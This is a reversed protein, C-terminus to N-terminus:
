SASWCTWADLLLVNQWRRGHRAAAPPTTIPTVAATATETLPLPTTVPAAATHAGHYGVDGATLKRIREKNGLQFETTFSTISWDEILRLCFKETTTALLGTKEIMALTLTIITIDSIPVHGLVAICQVNAIKSWLDEIPNDFNRPESLASRNRNRLTVAIVGATGEAEPSPGPNVPPVIFPIGICALCDAPNLVIALHGHNGGGRVSPVSQTNTFLQCQLLQLTTNTPKGDIPM